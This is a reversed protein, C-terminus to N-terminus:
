RQTRGHCSLPSVDPLDVDGVRVVHTKGGTTLLFLSADLGIGATKGCISSGNPLRVSTPKGLHSLAGVYEARWRPISDEGQAVMSALNRLIGNLLADRVELISHANQEDPHTNPLIWPLAGAQPGADEPLQGLNVGIGVAVLHKEEEVPFSGHNDTNQPTRTGLHECLIGAIKKGELLVDNPWKLSVEPAFMRAARLTALGALATVWPLAWSPLELLVAMLLSQGPLTNWQRGSRGRGVDQQDAVVTTGNAAGPNERVYDALVRLTSDVRKHRIVPAGMIPAGETAGKFHTALVETNTM